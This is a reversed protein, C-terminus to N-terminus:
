PIAFPYSEDTTEVASDESSVHHVVLKYRGHGKQPDFEISLPVNGPAHKGRGSALKTGQADLIEWAWDVAHIPVFTFKVKGAPPAGAGTCLCAPLVLLTGDAARGRALVWLDTEQIGVKAAAGGDWVVSCSPDAQCHASHLNLYYGRDKDDRIQVDASEAQVLGIEPVSVQLHQAPAVAARLLLVSRLRLETAGVPSQTLVGESWREWKARDPSSQAMARSGALLALALLIVASLKTVPALKPPMM